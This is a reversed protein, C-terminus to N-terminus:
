NEISGGGDGNDGGNDGGGNGDDDEELRFRRTRANEGRRRLGMRNKKALYGWDGPGREHHVNCQQWCVDNGHIPVGRKQLIQLAHKGIVNGNEESGNSSNNTTDNSDNSSTTTDDDAGASSPCRCLHDAVHAHVCKVNYTQGPPIGAVGSGLFAAANYEGLRSVLKSQRDEETTLEYRLQSQIANATQYGEQKWGPKNEEKNNNNRTGTNDSGPVNRDKSTRVWDSLQRVGGEGEYEDIAECLL